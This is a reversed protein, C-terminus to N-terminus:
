PQTTIREYKQAIVFSVEGHCAVGVENLVDGVLTSTRALDGHFLHETVIAKGAIGTVSGIFMPAHEISQEAKKLRNRMGNIGDAGGAGEQLNIFLESLLKAKPITMDLFLRAKPLQQTAKRYYIGNVHYDYAFASKCIM